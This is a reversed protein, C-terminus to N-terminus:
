STFDKAWLDLCPDKGRSTFDQAWQASPYSGNDRRRDSYRRWAERNNTLLWRSRVLNSYRYYHFYCMRKQHFAGGTHVQVWKQFVFGERSSAYTSLPHELERVYAANLIIACSHSKYAYVNQQKAEAQSKPWSYKPIKCDFNCVGRCVRAIALEMRLDCFHFFFYNNIHINYHWNM